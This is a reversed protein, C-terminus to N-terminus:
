PSVTDKMYSRVQVFESTLKVINKTVKKAESNEDSDLAEVIDDQNTLRMRLLHLKKEM